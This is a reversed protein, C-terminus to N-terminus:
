DNETDYISKEHFYQFFNMLNPMEELCCCFMISRQLFLLILSNEFESYKNKVVFNLSTIKLRGLM